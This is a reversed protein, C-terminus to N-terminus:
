KRDRSFFWIQYANKECFLSRLLPIIAPLCPCKIVYRICKRALKETM